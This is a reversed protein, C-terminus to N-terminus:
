EIHDIWQEIIEQTYGSEKLREIAKIKMLEVNGDYKTRVQLIINSIQENDTIQIKIKEDFGNLCNVLRSM